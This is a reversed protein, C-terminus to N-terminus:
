DRKDRKDRRRPPTANPPTPPDRNTRKRGKDEDAAKQKESIINWSENMSQTKLKSLALARKKKEEM